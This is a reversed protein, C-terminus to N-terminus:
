PKVALVACPAEQLIRQAQSGMVLKGVPSRRRLGIVLLDANTERVVASLEEVPEHGRVPQRVEFDVGGAELQQAIEDLEEPGALRSDAVSDGRSSNVVVLRVARLRAETIARQLAARGEVTPVYGLVVTM